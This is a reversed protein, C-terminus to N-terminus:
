SFLFQKEMKKRISLLINDVRKADIELLSAIDKYSFGNYRLEFVRGYEATLSNQFEKIKMQIEYDNYNEFADYPAVLYDLYDIKDYDMYSIEVDSSHKNVFRNVSRKLCIFLFTIFIIEADPNFVDIVKCFVIRCYQVIDEIDLDTNKYKNLFSRAIKYFLPEYKEMMYELAEENEKVLYVLEYDNYEM